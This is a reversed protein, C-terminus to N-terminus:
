GLSFNRGSKPRVVITRVLPAGLNKQLPPCSCFNEYIRFIQIMFYGSFIYGPIFGSFITSPLGWAGGGGGRNREKEEGNGIDVAAHHNITDGIRLDSVSSVPSRHETVVNDLFIDM